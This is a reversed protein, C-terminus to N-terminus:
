PSRHLWWGVEPSPHSHPSEDKTTKDSPRRSHGKTSSEPFLEMLLPQRGPFRSQCQHSSIIWLRYGCRASGM